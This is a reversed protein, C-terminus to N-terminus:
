RTWFPAVWERDPGKKSNGTKILPKCNLPLFLYFYVANIFGNYHRLPTLGLIIHINLSPCHICSLAISCLACYEKSDSSFKRGDKLLLNFCVDSPLAKWICRKKKEAFTTDTKPASLTIGKVVHTMRKPTEAQSHLAKRIGAKKFQVALWFSSEDNVFKLNGEEEARASDTMVTTAAM